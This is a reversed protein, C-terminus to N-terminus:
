AAWSKGDSTVTPLAKLMGVATISTGSGSSASAGSGGTSATAKPTATPSLTPTPTPPVIKSWSKGAVDTGSGSRSGGLTVVLATALLLAVLVAVGVRRAQNTPSTEDVQAFRAM